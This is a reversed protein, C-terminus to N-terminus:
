GNRESISESCVGVGPGGGLSWLGAAGSRRGHRSGREGFGPGSAARGSTQGCRDLLQSLREVWPEQSVFAQRDWDDRYIAEQHDGRSLVHYVAGPYEIRLQRAM